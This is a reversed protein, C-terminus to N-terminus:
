EPDPNSVPSLIATTDQRRASPADPQECKEDAGNTGVAREALWRELDDPRYRIAGSPLRVAPLHGARTWRLVTEPSIGLLAGVERATILPGTM